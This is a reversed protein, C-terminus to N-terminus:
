KCRKNRKKNWVKPDVGEPINAGHILEEVTDVTTKNTRKVTLTDVTEDFEAEILGPFLKPQKKTLDVLAKIIDIHLKTKKTM